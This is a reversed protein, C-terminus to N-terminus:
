FSSRANRKRQAFNLLAQRLLSRAAEPGLCSQKGPQRQARCLFSEAPAVYLAM